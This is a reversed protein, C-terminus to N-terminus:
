RGPPETAPATTPQPRKDSSQLPQV